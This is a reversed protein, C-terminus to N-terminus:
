FLDAFSFKGDGNRDIQLMVPFSIENATKGFQICERQVPLFSDRLLVVRYCEDLAINDIGEVVGKGSVVKV